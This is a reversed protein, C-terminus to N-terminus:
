RTPDRFCCLGYWNPCFRMIKTVTSMPFMVNPLNEQTVVVEVEVPTLLTVSSGDGDHCLREVDELLAQFSSFAPHLTKGSVGGREEVDEGPGM